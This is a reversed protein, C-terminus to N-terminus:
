IWTETMSLKDPSFFSYILLDLILLKNALFISMQMQASM